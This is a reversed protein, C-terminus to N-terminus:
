PRLREVHLRIPGTRGASIGTITVAPLGVLLALMRTPDVEM